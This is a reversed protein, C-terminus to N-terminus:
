STKSGGDGDEDHDQQQAARAKLAATMGSV